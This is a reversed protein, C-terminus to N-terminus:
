SGPACRNSAIWMDGRDHQTLRRGDFNRIDLRLHLVRAAAHDARLGGPRDVARLWRQARAGRRRDCRRGARGARPGCPSAPAQGAPCRRRPGARARPRRDPRRHHRKRRWDNESPECGGRSVHQRAVQESCRLETAIQEYSADDVIRASVAHAQGPSLEDGFEVAALARAADIAAEIREFGHEAVVLSELGLRRRTDDAVQDRRYSDTLLNRAIAFLWPAASGRRATRTAPTPWRVRSRRRPSTSRSSRTAPAGTSSPWYPGSTVATSRASRRPTTQPARWCSSM